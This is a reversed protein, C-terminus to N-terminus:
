GSAGARDLHAYPPSTRLRPDDVPGGVTFHYLSQFELGTIGLREHMADDFYCGIGTGRIGAAEAELYLVQGVIGTEWHLRRYEWAGYQELRSTFDALMGLAFAGDAAIDQHCSVTKSLRRDDSPELQFLPVDRPCGGQTRWLFSSRCAAKLRERDDPNRVLVYLGPELGSVRHVFVALHVAPSSSLVHFPPHGPMIARMMRYFVESAIGTQGDMSAASRRQRIMRRASVEGHDFPIEIGGREFNDASAMARETAHGVSEIIPWDHHTLSLRNPDGHLTYEPLDLNLAAPARDHPYLYLLCGPREAEASTQDELGLWRGLDPDTLSEVMRTNWGLLALALAVAGIAHGLDHQCYRFAREGYKWSERWYITTLGVLLAPQPIRVPLEARRELAHTYPCYHFLGPQDTLGAVGPAVMYAEIPHLNGSSPNCRVAWRSGHVEKWASLSLSDFFLQSIAARDLPRAPTRTPDFLADYEPQDGPEVQDLALQDAGVYRRFPDPQSAWDMYGVSAAYQHLHHKMRQHYELISNLADTM